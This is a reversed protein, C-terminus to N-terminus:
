SCCYPVADSDSADVHVDAAHAVCVVNKPCPMPMMLLLLLILLLLMLM